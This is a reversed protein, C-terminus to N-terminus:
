YFASRRSAKREKWTRRVGRGSARAKGAMRAVGM